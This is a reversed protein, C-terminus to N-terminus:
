GLRVARTPCGRREDAGQEEGRRHGGRGGRPRDQARALQPGNYNPDRLYANVLKGAYQEEMGATV